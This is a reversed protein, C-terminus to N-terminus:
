PPCITAWTVGGMLDGTNADGSGDLTVLGAGEELRYLGLTDGDAAYALPPVFDDTYRAVSSVRVGSIAGDFYFSNNIRSGIMLDLDSDTFGTAVVEDALVGDVALRLDAGDYIAALHHWENLPLPDAATVKSFKMGDPAYTYARGVDDLGLEFGEFVGMSNLQSVIAQQGAGQRAYVWAELTWATATLHDATVVGDVGDFDLSICAKPLDSPCTMTWAAMGAIEGDNAASSSDAAVLGEGEDLRWLALTDTDAVLHVSPAFNATYRAVSSVRARAIAGDFFFSDSLRTGIQLPLDSDVFAGPVVVPDLVGDVALRLATGDYIGALHHWEGQSLPAEAMVKGAFSVGDPAYTYPRGGEVGLEFGEFVGANDLQSLIAQQSTKAGVTVWAEITWATASVHDATVADDAGDFGLAACSATNPAPCSTTWAADGAIAGDNAGDSSDGAVAGAGEDLHYLALTDADALFGVAPTFNDAYRAASSVRVEYIEGDFFFDNNLRSGIQLLEVSDVFGTAVVTPDIVGDVALRLESGDYSGALHHWEGLTLPESAAVKGAFDMGDPSFVYARGGEIGLEFGSFGGVSDLQSVIAQQGEASRPLVWAEVTWVDAGVHTATIVDDVGDFDLGVCAAGITAQATGAPGEDTGDSPTATCEWVEGIELQGAPVTADAIGADVGDRTWAFTYTVADGDPDVAEGTIECTLADTRNPDTPTIVVTPAGPPDNGPTGTTGGSSTPADSTTPAADTDTGASDTGPATAEDDASGGGPCATAAATFMLGLFSRLRIHTTKM